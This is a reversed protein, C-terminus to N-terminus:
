EDTGNADWQQLVEAIGFLSSVCAHLLQYGQLVLPLRRDVGLLSLAHDVERRPLHADANRLEYIGVLPSLLLRAEHADIKTAILAELSRLSGWKEGKPPSVVRQMAASDLSDATLRALDKALSLFGAEDVARFRHSRLLLAPVQEHERLLPFGLKERGLRNLLDLGKPLFDEPAQTSAPMAEMQSALLEESVGGEPSVNFGSWIRQQWEPLLAIDKAYVNVLGLRNVGFHVGYDPSCSVGGTQATYWALAGGRRHALAMIVGPRFWLWRSDNQLTDRTELNGEADTIFFVAPPPQDGRVRPSLPAPDIWETRWLEGQIRYLLRGRPEVSWSESVIDDDTPFGFRPVGQEADVDTRSAHHVAITAGFPHGGEHIQVVQGEWRDGENQERFPNEPWHIEDANEAVVRRSRYSCVCLAMGRACLYDRLHEARVHLLCPAGDRGRHLRAVEMYGENPSIWVDAERKLGLAFVLDQHLHWENVELSNTHQQLALHVGTFQGASDEYIDCAVYREGEVLPAHDYAIGVDTWGLQRAFERKEVPVALSGVGLLVEKFGAVGYRGEEEITQAARLPIWVATALRRRRVDSMEFWRQDM